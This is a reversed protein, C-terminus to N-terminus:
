PVEVGAQVAMAYLAQKYEDDTTTEFVTLQRKSEAAPRVHLVFPRVDGIRRSAESQKKHKEFATFVPRVQAGCKVEIRTEGDYQEEHGAFFPGAKKVGARRAANRQGTNGGNRTRRGKCRVCPCRRVHQGDKHKRLQPRGLRPCEAHDCVCTIEIKFNPNVETVVEEARLRVRRAAGCRL